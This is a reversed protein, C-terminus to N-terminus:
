KMSRNELPITSTPNEFLNLVSVGSEYVLRTSRSTVLTFRKDYSSSAGILGFVETTVDGGSGL